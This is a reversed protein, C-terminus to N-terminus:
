GKISGIMVGKVFYKQLFPYVIIIPVTSIVISAAKITEQVIHVQDEVVNNFDEVRNLTIIQRLKVQLPYMTSKNIYILANFFTNWHGVAYFLAITALAPLALPLIIKFLIVIDNCGDIQASEELSSPISQFFTKLLIMNYTSIAGPIMLAWFTDILKLQKILLYHPILGGSFWMTFAILFLLTKRGRLRPKSLPYAAFMTMIMNIFTGVVTIYISNRMSQFISGEKFVMKYADLQFEIPYFSVLGASVARNSSFSTAIVNLFPFLTSVALLVLLTYNISYGINESRTKKIAL